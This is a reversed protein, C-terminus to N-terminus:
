TMGLELPSWEIVVTTYTSSRTVHSPSRAGGVECRAALLGCAASQKAVCSLDVLWSNERFVFSKGARAESATASARFGVAGVACPVPM